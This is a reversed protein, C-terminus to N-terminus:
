SDKAIQENVRTTIAEGKDDMAERKASAIVQLDNKV